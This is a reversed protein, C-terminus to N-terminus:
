VFNGSMEQGCNWRGGSTTRWHHCAHLRRTTSTPVDLVSRVILRLVATRVQIFLCFPTCNLVSYVAVNRLFGIRGMRCTGWRSCASLFECSILPLLLALSSSVVSGVGRPSWLSCTCCYSAGSSPCLPKRFMDLLIFNFYLKIIKFSIHM